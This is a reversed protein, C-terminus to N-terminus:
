LQETSDPESHAHDIESRAQLYEMVDMLTGSGTMDSATAGLARSELALKLLASLLYAMKREVMGDADTAAHLAWHLLVHQKEGVSVAILLSPVLWPLGHHDMGAPTLSRTRIWLEETSSGM